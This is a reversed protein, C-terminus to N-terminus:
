MSIGRLVLGQWSRSMMVISIGLGPRKAKGKLGFLNSHLLIPYPIRGGRSIEKPLTGLLRESIVAVPTEIFIVLTRRVEFKISLRIM